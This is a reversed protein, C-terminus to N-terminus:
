SARQAAPFIRSGKATLPQTTATLIYGPLVQAAPPPIAKITSSSMMVPLRQGPLATAVYLEGDNIVHSNDGNVISGTSGQGSINSTGTNAVTTENGDIVMGTGGGTVDIGGSIRTTTGNGSILAGTASDVNSQGSITNTTNDGTIVIGVAGDSVSSDGSLANNTRDGSIIVGTKGEGRTDVGRDATNSADDGTVVTTQDDAVILYGQSDYKWYLGSGQVTGEIVAANDDTM